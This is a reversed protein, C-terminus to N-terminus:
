VVTDMTEGLIAGASGRLVLAALPDQDTPQNNIIVVTGGRSATEQPIGAAPYVRLSTGVTVLLDARGAEAFARRTEREPMSQGFSITAPKL